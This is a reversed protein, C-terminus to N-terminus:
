GYKLEESETTLEAISALLQETEFPKALFGACGAKIAKENVWDEEIASIALIKTGPLQKLILETAELGNKRPLAIDMLILQPKLDLAKKVAERGDYAEGVIQHGAKELAKKCVLVIFSSDDVILINM